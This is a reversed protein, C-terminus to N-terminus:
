PLLWVLPQMVARIQGKFKQPRKKRAAKRNSANENKHLSFAACDASGKTLSAEGTLISDALGVIEGGTLAGTFVSGARSSDM